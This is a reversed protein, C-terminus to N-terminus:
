RGGKVVEGGKMVFAMRQLTTVDKTPDGEVAVIDAYYGPAIRGIRDGWGMLDAASTTACQIAQMPTMGWDVMTKFQKANWGHPYVGADTAFAMKAGAAWAKRFNERQLRGISREKDMSAPEVGNKAGEALIYDDDYVDMDLYVGKAKAMRIGEDDILSAHEVSDVGARIAAKIAETGHAHVAVKRGWMHAESVIADMEEQTLQQGGVSDGHSLVGGSGMFKIVDVGYKANQRVKARFGWPSDAIGSPGGDDAHRAEWPLLNEDAHGGTSGLPPGSVQMRPGEILGDNIADRLAVDTFGGAGVNRVATFGAELTRRANVVGIIAEQPTSVTLANAGSEEPNATLHTHVDILGPLVTDNSLDILRADAPPRVAATPGVATVKGGAILIIQDNLVKGSLPDLLKGAHIAIPAQPRVAPTQAFAAPAFALVAVVFILRRM